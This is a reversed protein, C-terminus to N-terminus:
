HVNIPQEDGSCNSADQAAQALVAPDVHSLLHAMGAIAASLVLWEALAAAALPDGAEVGKNLLEVLSRISTTVALATM